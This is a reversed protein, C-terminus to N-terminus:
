YIDGPVFGGPGHVMHHLAIAATQTRETEKLRLYCGKFKHLESRFGRAFGDSIGAKIARQYMVGCGNEMQLLEDVTWDNSTVIQKAQEWKERKDANNTNSIKWDFFAPLMDADEV